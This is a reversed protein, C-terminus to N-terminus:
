EAIGFGQHGPKKLTPVPVQALLTVAEAGAM